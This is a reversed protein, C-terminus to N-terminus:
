IYRFIGFSNFVRKMRFWKPEILLRYIGELGNKQIFIPARKKLGAVMEFTGGSGVAMTVNLKQLFSRNDDIWYEQKIAGFGVFIYDPRFESLCELISNQKELDFPYPSFEPSYGAVRICYQEKLRKVSLVNAEYTGGLLFISKHTLRCHEAVDYIFDSGSIKEIEANKYRKKILVFPIQGDVTAINNNIISLLRPTKNAEVLIDANVTIVHQFSRDNLLIQKKTLGKFNVNGFIITDDM